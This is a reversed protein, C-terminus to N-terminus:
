PKRYAKSRHQIATVFVIGGEEVVRYLIRWDGVKAYRREPNMKVENSIRNDYPDKGLQGLRLLIRGATVQDLRDLAKEAQHHM